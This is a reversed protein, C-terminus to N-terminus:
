FREYIVIGDKLIDNKLAKSTTDDYPVLDIKKLTPANEQIDLAFYIWDKPIDKNIQVAFDYDSLFSAQQRARSGFLWIKEIGAYNLAQSRIFKVVPDIINPEM